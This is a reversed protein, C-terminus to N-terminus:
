ADSSLRFNILPANNTPYALHDRGLALLLRGARQPLGGVDDGLAGGGELQAVQLRQVADGRLVVGGDDEGHGHVDHVVEHPRGGGLPRLLVLLVEEGALIFCSPSPSSSAFHWEWVEVAVEKQREGGGGKKLIGSFLVFIVAVCCLVEVITRM